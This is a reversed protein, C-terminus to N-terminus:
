KDEEFSITVDSWVRGDSTYALGDDGFYLGFEAVGGDYERLSNYTFQIWNGEPLDVTFELRSADDAQAPYLDWQAESLECVIVAKM